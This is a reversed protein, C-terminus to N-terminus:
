ISAKKIIMKNQILMSLTLLILLIIMGIFPQDWDNPILMYRFVVGYILIAFAFVLISKFFIKVDFKIAERNKNLIQTILGFICGAIISIVIFVTLSGFAPSKYEIWRLISFFVFFPLGWGLGGYLFVEKIKKISM